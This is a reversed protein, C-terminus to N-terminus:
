MIKIFQFTDTLDEYNWKGNEKYANKVIAVKLSSGKDTGIVSIRYAQADELTEFLEENMEESSVVFFVRTEKLMNLIEKLKVWEEIM